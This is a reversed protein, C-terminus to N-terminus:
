QSGLIARWWQTPISRPFTGPSRRFGPAHESAMDGLVVLNHTRPVPAGSRVLAAKLYKEISQQCHFCVIGALQAPNLASAALFDEEAKAVWEEFLPENM